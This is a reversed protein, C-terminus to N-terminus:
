SEFKGATAPRVTRKMLIVLRRGIEMKSITVERPEPEESKAEREESEAGLERNSQDLQDCLARLREIESYMAAKTTKMSVSMTNEKLTYTHACGPIPQVLATIGLRSASLSTRLRVRYTRRRLMTNGRRCVDDLGASAV